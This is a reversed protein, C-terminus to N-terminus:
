FTADCFLCSKGPNKALFDVKCKKCAFVKGSSCGHYKIISGGTPPLKETRCVACTPIQWVQKQFVDQQCQPCKNKEKGCTACMMFLHKEQCKIVYARQANPMLPKDCVKCVVDNLNNKCLEHELFSKPVEQYVCIKERFFETFSYRYKSLVLPFVRAYVGATYLAISAGLMCVDRKFSARQYWVKKQKKVAVTRQEDHMGHVLAFQGVFIMCILLLIRMTNM